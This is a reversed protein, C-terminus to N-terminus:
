SVETELALQHLASEEIQRILWPHNCCHRLMMSVNNFSVAASGQAGVSQLLIARNQELCARYCLKQLNTIEVYVLTEKLAHLSKEVSLM